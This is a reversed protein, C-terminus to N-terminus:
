RQATFTALWDTNGVQNQHFGQPNFDYPQGGPTGGPRATPPVNPANNVTFMDFYEKTKRIAEVENMGQKLFGSLTARFLPEYRAEKALPMEAQLQAMVQDARQAGQFNDMTERQSREIRSRTVQDGDELAQRYIAGMMPKLANLFRQPDQETFAASLEAADVGGAFDLAEIHQEFRTRNDPPQPPTQQPPPQQQQNQPPPAWPDLDPKDNNEPPIEDPPLGQPPQQQPPPPANAPEQPLPDPASFWNTFANM